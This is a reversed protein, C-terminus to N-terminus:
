NTNINGNEIKMQATLAHGLALKYPLNVPTSAPLKAEGL